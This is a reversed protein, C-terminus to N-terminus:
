TGATASPRTMQFLSDVTSYDRYGLRSVPRYLTVDVKGDVVFREDIHVGVVEGIVMHNDPGPLDVVRWVRCELAAPATAIRPPAV